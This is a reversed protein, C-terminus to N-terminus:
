HNFKNLFDKKRSLAQHIQCKDKIARRRETMFLRERQESDRRLQRVINKHLISDQQHTLMARIVM